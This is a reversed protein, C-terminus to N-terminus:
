AKADVRTALHRMAARRLQRATVPKLLVDNPPSGSWRKALDSETHGSIMIVRAQPDIQRIAALAECGGMRPMVADLFILDIKGANQRFCEVAEEGDAATLVRLGARALMVSGMQRLEPEDDVLLVTDSSRWAPDDDVIADVALAMAGDAPELVPFQLTFTTGHGLVSTAEITGGMSEVLTRVATLGLGRGKAKTSYFPQFLKKLVEEDMGCGTDTVRILVSLVDPVAPDMPPAPEIELRIQGPKGGLAEVANLILNMLIQRFHGPDGMLHPLRPALLCELRSHRPVTVRLLQQLQAVLEPLDVRTRIPEARGAYALMARCLAAAHVVAERIDGLRPVSAGAQAAEDIALESHGLIIALINNLDHAVEGVVLGLSELKQLHCFDATHPCDVDCSQACPHSPIPRQRTEVTV